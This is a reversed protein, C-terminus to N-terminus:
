ASQSLMSLRSMRTVGIYRIRPSTKPPEDLSGTKDGEPHDSSPLTTISLPSVNSTGSTPSANAQTRGSLISQPLRPRTSAPLGTGSASAGGASGSSAAVAANPVM